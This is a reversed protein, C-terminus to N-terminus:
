TVGPQKDVEASFKKVTPWEGDPMFLLSCLRTVEAARFRAGIKSLKEALSKLAQESERDYQDTDPHALMKLLAELTASKEFAIGSENYRSSQLLHMAKTVFNAKTSM